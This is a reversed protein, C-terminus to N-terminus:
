SSFHSKQWQIRKLSHFCLLFYVGFGTHTMTLHKSSVGPDRRHGGVARSAVVRGCHWSSVLLEQRGLDHDSRGDHASAPVSLLVVAVSIGAPTKNKVETLETGSSTADGQSSTPPHPAPPPHIPQAGEPHLPIFRRLRQAVSCCHLHAQSQECRGLGEWLIFGLMKIVACRQGWSQALAACRCVHM